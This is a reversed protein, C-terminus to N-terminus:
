DFQTQADYIIKKENKKNKFFWCGNNDNQFGQNEYKSEKSRGSNSNVNINTTKEIDKRKFYGRGNNNGSISLININNDNGINISNTNINKKTNSNRKGKGNDKKSLKIIKYNQNKQILKQNSLNFESFNDNSNYNSNIPMIGNTQTNKHFRIRFFPHKMVQIPTIRANPNYDLMKLILDRFQLHEYIMLYDLEKKRTNSISFNKQNVQNSKFNTEFKKNYENTPIRLIDSLSRKRFQTNTKNNTIKKLVWKDNRNKEFFKSTGAAKNLMDDPPIGLVEVIKAMQEFENRGPFLPKGTRLEVLICGFSWMDIAYGYEMKLLIEPSRYFRSQIYTHIKQNQECSSGFDIVKIRAKRPNELLINEPKLDCHIIQVNKSRLFQLTEVIQLALTKVLVISIGKLKTKKLVQYLNLSLLEFVFCLHNRYKFSDILKVVHYKDEPDAQNLRELIQKEILGQRYFASKSKIIKIAVYKQNKHDFAQVVQGFSGVGINRVIQYVGAFVENKKIVYNYSEDDYGNNYLSLSRHSKNKFDKQMKKEYYKKNITKYTNLLGVSMKVVPREFNSRTQSENETQSGQTSGGVSETETETETETESGSGSESGSESGSISGSEDTEETVASEESNESDQSIKSNVEVMSVSLDEKEIGDSGTGSRFPTSEFEETGLIVNQKENETNNNKIVRYSKMQYSNQHTQNKNRLSENRDSYISTKTHKTFPSNSNRKQIKKNNEYIQKDGEDFSM